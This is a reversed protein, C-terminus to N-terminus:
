FDHIEGKEHTASVGAHGTTIDRQQPKNQQFPKTSRDIWGRLFKAMGRRTKRQASNALCWASAKTMEAYLDIEPYAESLGSILDDPAFWDGGDKLRFPIPPEAEPPPALIETKDEGRKEEGRREESLTVTSTRDRSLVPVRKAKQRKAKQRLAAKHAEAREMWEHIEPYEGGTDILGAEELAAWLKEPKGDFDLADAIDDASIDVLNGDPAERMAVCWLGVVLGRAHNPHVGLLRALRRVKRHGLLSDELKCWPM